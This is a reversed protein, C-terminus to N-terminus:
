GLLISLLQPEERSPAGVMPELGDSVSISDEVM